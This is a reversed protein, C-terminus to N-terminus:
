LEAPAALCAGLCPLVVSCVAPKVLEQTQSAPPNSHKLLLGQGVWRFLYVQVWYM